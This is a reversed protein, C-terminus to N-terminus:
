DSSDKQKKLYASPTDGYTMKFYHAFMKPSFGVNDAVESINTRGQDLLSKGRELRIIRMFELPSKGTIAMLKKYLHGRTLGVDSSLQAVSYNEDALHAEVNALVHGILEEDLSSVTIESPKIEIGKGVMMRVDTAWQLVNKIRLKLVALSYPKTIYDAVGEELSRVIDEESSKATLLIVPIHSYNINGKIYRFLEIGDMEPMMIDSVVLSVDTDSELVRVAEKGNAALVVQYEDSLSRQLFLRADSNDEVVLLTAKQSLEKEAVAPAVPTAPAGEVPITVKFVTGQPHNDAVSIQGGMMDVYQKVIHLGLGSGEQEHGHTEQMFRDFVHRKDLVGIGTDAVTLVMQQAPEQGKPSANVELTVNVSGNDTNYKFANSLLNTIIRRMKNEDFNIEIASTPVQLRLQIQKRTTYYTFGQVTQRVFSVIDGHKMILKEKGVDLRRFDLLQLVLDYLQRANRWAVDIETRVSDPLATQRIKELPAVVLTLPTKLDHSINTFFRIKEEEMEYKEMNMELQKFALERKQRLRLARYALWLLGAFLLVYLVIAPTSRWLPPMVRIQLEAINSETMGPLEAKVQLVHQGSSLSVFNLANNPARTWEDDGEFRYLYRVKQALTPEMASVFITPRDGYRINFDALSGESKRGNVLFGTFEVKLPGAIKALSEPFVADCVMYGRFCGILASGDRANLAANNSFVVEELGDDYFAYCQYGQKGNREARKVICTLGNDTGAWITQVGQPDTARALARVSNHSLGEDTTFHRLSDNQTGYMWLGERTGIWLCHGDDALISTVFMNKLQNLALSEVFQEKSVDYACVGVPTGVYVMDRLTDIALCLTGNAPLSSNETTFHDIRGDSKVRVVGQDVTAVWLNGRRDTLMAKVYKLHPKDPFLQTFRGGDMRAIGGGYSGVLVNGSGDIALATVIDSPLTQNAVTYHHESGSATMMTVGDGDFGIWLNGDSDELLASVDEYSAHASPDFQTSLAAFQSIHSPANTTRVLRFNKRCMDTFAVGLKATGVWFTNNDDLYLCSIHCSHTGFMECSLTKAAGQSPERESLFSSSPLMRLGSNETGIWLHGDNDEILTNMMVNGLLMLEEMRRWQQTNLSFTWQEGVRSHGNYVWLNNHHDLYVRSDRNYATPSPHQTLPMMRREKMSISYISYDATVAFASDGKSVIHKIPQSHYNISTLQRSAYDYHYLQRDTVVWLNRSDDVYFLQVGGEIGLAALRAEGDNRWVDAMRDYCFLGDNCVMWLVSDSTERVMTVENSHAGFTLPLYSVFRHGDYRSLGNLSSFWMYGRSDRMVDRVFLGVLGDKVSLTRFHYSPADHNDGVEAVAKGGGVFPICILWLILVGLLKRMLGSSKM